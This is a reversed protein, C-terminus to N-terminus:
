LWMRYLSYYPTMNDQGYICCWPRYIFPVLKYGYDVASNDYKCSNYGTWTKRDVNYSSPHEQFGLRGALKDNISSLLYGLEQPNLQPQLVKPNGHDGSGIRTIHKGPIGSQGETLGIEEAAQVDSEEEVTATGGHLLDVHLGRAYPIDSWESDSLASPRAAMPIGTEYLINTGNRININIKTKSKTYNGSVEEIDSSKNGMGDLFSTSENNDETNYNINSSDKGFYPTEDQKEQKLYTEGNFLSSTINQDVKLKDGLQSGTQLLIPQQLSGGFEFSGHRKAPTSRHGGSEIYGNMGHYGNVTHHGILNYKNGNYGGGHYGGAHYGNMGHYGGWPYGNGNYGGDHDGQHYGNMAYYGGGSHYKNGHYGSAGYKGTGGTHMDTHLGFNHMNGLGQYSKTVGAQYEAMANEHGSPLIGHAAHTEMVPPVMVQHGVMGGYYGSIDRDLLGGTKGEKVGISHFGNQGVAASYSGLGVTGQVNNMKHLATPLGAHLGSFGTGHQQPTDVGYYQGLGVGYTGELGIGNDGVDPYHWQTATPHGNIGTASHMLDPEYFGNSHSFPMGLKQDTSLGHLAPGSIPNREPHKNIVFKFPPNFENGGSVQRAEHLPLVRHHGVLLGSYCGKGCMNGLDHSNHLVPGLHGGLGQHATVLGGFGHGHHTLFATHTGHVHLPAQRNSQTQEYVEQTDSIGIAQTPAPIDDCRGCQTTLLVWILIYLKQPSLLYHSNSSVLNNM